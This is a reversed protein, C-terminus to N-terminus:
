RRKRVDGNGNAGKHVSVSASEPVKDLEDGEDEGEDEDDSRVDEAGLGRIVRVAVMLAMYFWITALTWLVCLMGIFGYYTTKTLYMGSAPDWKFPIYNPADFYCTRIVLALGIQRSFLWALLFVVFTVDCATTRSLYRFM